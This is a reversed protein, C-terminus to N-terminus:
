RRPRCVGWGLYGMGGDKGGQCDQDALHLVAQVTEPPFKRGFLYCRGAPMAQM